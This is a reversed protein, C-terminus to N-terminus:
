RNLFDLNFKAIRQRGKEDGILTKNWAFKYSKWWWLTSVACIGKVREWWGNRDAIERPLDELGISSLTILVCIPAPICTM